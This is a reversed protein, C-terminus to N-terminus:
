ENVSPKQHKQGRLDKYGMSEAYKKLKEKLMNRARFLRSRVTGIPVEIIKAIEEYSFDEIDCLWIVTRFEEPLANLAGSVEDGMMQDFIDERLDYYSSGLGEEEEQYVNVEEYDVFSPQRSEKRYQNIYANKLIKFLWAKANTGEEFKDIFRFAKLFTEQVLDAADEENFSLHFAFTHLAELHPLFEKEFREQEPSQIKNM